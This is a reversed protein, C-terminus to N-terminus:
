FSYGITLSATIPNYDRKIKTQGVCTSGVCNNYKLEYKKLYTYNVAASIMWDNDIRYNLGLQAVPAIKNSEKGKFILTDAGQTVTLDNAKFYNYSAGLGVYPVMDTDNFFHYQATLATQQYKFNDKVKQGGFNFDQKIKVPWTGSLEAGFGMDSLYSLALLGTMGNKVAAKDEGSHKNIKKAGSNLTFIGAAGAKLMWNGDMLASSAGDEDDESDSSFAVNKKHEPAPHDADVATLEGQDNVTLNDISPKSAFLASTFFLWTVVGLLTKKIFTSM